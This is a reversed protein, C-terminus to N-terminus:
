EGTPGSTAGVTLAAGATFHQRVKEDLEAALDPNSKLYERTNERGQGLRLDQYGYWAGSKQVLGIEVAL